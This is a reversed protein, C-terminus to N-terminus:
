ILNGYVEEAKEYNQKVKYLLGLQSQTQELFPHTKDYKLNALQTMYTKEMIELAENIKEERLYSVAKMTYASHVLHTGEPINHQSCITEMKEIDEDM